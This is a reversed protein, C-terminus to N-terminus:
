SSNANDSNTFGPIKEDSDDKRWSKQLGISAPRLFPQEWASFSSAVIRDASTIEENKMSGYNDLIVSCNMSRRVVATIKREAKGGLTVDYM